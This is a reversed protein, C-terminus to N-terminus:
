MIKVVEEDLGFDDNLREEDRDPLYSETTSIDNHHALAKLTKIPLQTKGLEKLVEHTGNEYNTLSSHRFSHPNIEIYEGTLNKLIGRFSVVWAYFSEYSRKRRINKEEVFWLSEIDDEGRQEFYKKAIERTRNFYILTFKKGRKGVVLNTQKSNLFNDKLVQAVEGRRGASDYSLSLYLAMQYKEKSMLFDIIKTIQDDTLFIIEKVKEGKIGKVARMANIDYEYEDDDAVAFELLNRISSQFRNIRASSTGNDKIKLFFMRFARKKLDLIFPNNMERCLWCLFAKIDSSYQYITKESKGQSKLELIYDELLQKNEINVKTEYLEKDYLNNRKAM